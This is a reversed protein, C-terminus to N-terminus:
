VVCILHMGDKYQVCPFGEDKRSKEMMERWFWNDDAKALGIRRFIGAMPDLIQFLLVYMLAKSDSGVLEQGVSVAMGFLSCEGKEWGVGSGRIRDPRPLRPDPIVVQLRKLVGRLRLWGDSVDGTLNSTCYDVHFGDIEILPTNFRYSLESYLNRRPWAIARDESNLGRRPWVVAGDVSAWSWSPARYEVLPATPQGAVLWVLQRELDRAWMGAVYQDGGLVTSGVRAAIGSLAVLKDSSFTLDCATYAVVIDMWKDLGRGAPDDDAGPTIWRNASAAPSMLKESACTAGCEWSVTSRGFHLIRPSLLREQVVWARHNVIAEMVEETWTDRALVLIVPDDRKKLWIPSVRAPNRASFMSESANRSHSASINCSSNAYVKEMRSAENHWDLKDDDQFICLSDIWISGVGLDRSVAIVDQFLRPLLSLPMGRFLDSCTKKNLTFHLGPGWCYSLTTYPGAFGSEGTDVLRIISQDGEPPELDFTLLRTPHWPDTQVAPSCHQHSSQCAVIWRKALIVADRSWTAEALTWHNVAESLHETYPQLKYYSFLVATSTTTSSATTDSSSTSLELM